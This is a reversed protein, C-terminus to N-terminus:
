TRESTIIAAPNGLVRAGAPVDKTVVAGPEIRAGAGIQVGKLVVALPGIWAGHGIVVPKSLGHRREGSGIPSLALVDAQREAPAVPHFDSDVITAHWGIVVRDGIRIAESAILYCEQLLCGAGIEVLAEPDLNFAVGDVISGDGVVLAPQRLSRFRAFVRTKTVEDALIHADRGLIVNSPPALAARATAHEPHTPPTDM